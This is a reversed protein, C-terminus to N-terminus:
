ALKEVVMLSGATELHTAKGSELLERVCVAVGGHHNTGKPLGANPAADHFAAAGGVTLSPWHRELDARVGAETHDGDVLLLSLASVRPCARSDEVWIHVRSEERLFALRDDITEVLDVSYLHQHPQTAELLLALSGGFRRGIELVNGGSEKAYRYLCAAEDFNMRILGRNRNNCTFLHALNHM